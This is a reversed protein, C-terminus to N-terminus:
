EERIETHLVTMRPDRERALFQHQQGRECVLEARVCDAFHTAFFRFTTLGTEWRRVLRHNGDVLVIHGDPFLVTIGPRELEVSTFMPLRWAEVGGNTRIHDVWAQDLDIKYLVLPIREAFLADKLGRVDFVLDGFDPNNFSYIERRQEQRIIKQGNGLDRLVTQTPTRERVHALQLAERDASTITDAKAEM